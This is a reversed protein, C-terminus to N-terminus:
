VRGRMAKSAAQIGSAVDKAIPALPVAAIGVIAATTLSVDEMMRGVVLAIAVAVLSSLMRVVGVYRAQAMILAADIRADVALEYRGIIGREAPTLEDGREAAAVAAALAAGDVVGLFQAVDAANRANLGVRAGQRLTRAM